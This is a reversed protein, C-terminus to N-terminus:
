IEQEARDLVATIVLRHTSEWLPTCTILTLRYDSTPYIVEREFPTIVKKQVVTYSYFEGRQEIEIRDGLNVRDLYFFTDKAPPLKLFRHGLIVTNGKEGPKASIPIFWFGKSLISENGGDFVRGEINVSTIRLKTHLSELSSKEEFENKEFKKQKDQTKAFSIEALYDPNTAEEGSSFSEDSSIPEALPSLKNLIEFTSNYTLKYLDFDLVKQKANALYPRLFYFTISMLIVLTLVSFVNKNISIKRM